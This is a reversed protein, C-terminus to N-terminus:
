VCKKSDNYLIYIVFSFLTKFPNTRVFISCFLAVAETALPMLMIDEPFFYFFLFFLIFDQEM